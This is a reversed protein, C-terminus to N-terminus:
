LHGLRGLLGPMQRLLDLAMNADRLSLAAIPTHWVQGRVAYIRFDGSDPDEKGDGYFGFDVVMPGKAYQALDEALASLALPRLPRVVQWGAVRFVSNIQLAPEM